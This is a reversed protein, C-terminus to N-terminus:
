KKYYQKAIDESTIESYPIFDHIITLEMSVDIIKPKLGAGSDKRIEWPYGEITKYSLSDIYAPAGLGYNNMIARYIPNKEISEFDKLFNDAGQNELLVKNVNEENARAAATGRDLTSQVEGSRTVSPKETQNKEIPVINSVLKNFAPNAKAQNVQLNNLEIAYYGAENPGMYSETIAKFFNDIETSLIERDGQVNWGWLELFKNRHYNLIKTTITYRDLEFYGYIKGSTKGKFKDSDEILVENGYSIYLLKGFKSKTTQFYLLTDLLSNDNNKKNIMKKLGINGKIDNSLKWIENAMLGGYTTLQQGVQRIPVYKGWKNTFQKNLPIFGSYSNMVIIEKEFADKVDKLSSHNLLFNQMSFKSYAKRLRQPEPALTIEKLVVSNSNATAASPSSLSHSAANHHYSIIEDINPSIYDSINNKILDGIKIRILPQSKIQTSYPSDVFFQKSGVQFKTKRKETVTPYVLSTLYDIKEWMVQHDAESTSFIKFSLNIKRTTSKYTKIPDIRGFYQEEAWQPSYTESFDSLTARFNIFEGNRLDQIYFPISGNHNNYDANIKTELIVRNKVKDSFNTNAYSITPLDNFMHSIDPYHMVKKFARTSYPAKETDNLDAISVFLNIASVLKSTSIMDLSDSSIVNDWYEIKDAGKPFRDIVDLVDRVISRCLIVYYGYSSLLNFPNFFSTLGDFVHTYYDWGKMQRKPPKFGLTKYLTDNNDSPKDKIPDKSKDKEDDYLYSLLITPLIAITIAAMTSLIITASLLTTGISSKSFKDFYNNLVGYSEHNQYNSTDGIALKDGEFLKAIENVDYNLGDMKLGPLIQTLGPILVAAGPGGIINNPGGQANNIQPDVINKGSARLLLTEALENMNDVSLQIGDKKVNVNSSDNDLKILGNEASSKKYKRISFTADKFDKTYSNESTFRNKILAASIYSKAPSSEFTPNNDKLLLNGNQSIENQLKGKKILNEELTKNLFDPKYQESNTNNTLQPTYLPDGSYISTERDKSDVQYYSGNERTKAGLYDKLTKKIVPKIDSNLSKFEGSKTDVKAIGDTDLDLLPGSKLYEDKKTNSESM